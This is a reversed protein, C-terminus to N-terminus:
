QDTPKEGETEDAGKDKDLKAKDACGQDGCAAPTGQMNKQMECGKEYVAHIEQVVKPKTSTLLYLAGTKLPM